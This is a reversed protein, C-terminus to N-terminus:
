FQGINQLYEIYNRQESLSALNENIRKIFEDDSMRKRKYRALLFDINKLAQNRAVVNKTGTKKM